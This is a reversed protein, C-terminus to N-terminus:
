PLIESLNQGNILLSYGGQGLPGLIVFASLVHPKEPPGYIVLRAFYITTIMFALSLGIIAMTLSFSATLIAFKTSQAKLATSLLGGTTSAVILTIFPLLWLTTTEEVAHKQEAMMAYLMGFAILYSVISVLWWFGWLACLFGVNGFNWEQNAVLATNILTMAGMPFAGIFLSQVPHRIMKLWVGPFMTYRAITVGTFLVFLIINLFFVILTVVKIAPSGNGYPFAHVLTSTAGTGMIVTHWAWTFHRICEKWSTRPSAGSM